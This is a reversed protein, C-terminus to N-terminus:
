KRAKKTAEGIIDTVQDVWDEWTDSDDMTIRSAKRLATKIAPDNADVGPPLVWKMDEELIVSTGDDRKFTFFDTNGVRNEDAYNVEDFDSDGDKYKTMRTNFGKQSIQKSQETAEKEERKRVFEERAREYASKIKDPASTVAEKTKEGAATATSSVKDRTTSVGSKISSLLEGGHKQLMSSARSSLDRAKTSAASAASAATRAKDSASTLAARGLAAANGATQKASSLAQQAKQRGQNLAARLEEQTYFYRAKAGEGWKEIYKHATRVGRGVGQMGRSAGKSVRGSAMTKVGRWSIHAIYPQSNEDFTIIYNRENM